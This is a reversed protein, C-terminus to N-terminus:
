GPFRAADRELPIQLGRAVYAITRYQGCLMMIELIHADDFHRALEQFEEDDLTARAHLADVARILAAEASSWCPASAGDIVTARVQEDTLQAAAAFLKVHVGWEYECGALACTRDIVIERQRLSLPGRDLLSGARLKKWARDSRAIVRFLMLPEGGKMVEDFSSKMDAAYPPDLPAIRPM